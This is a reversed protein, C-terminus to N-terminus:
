AEFTSNRVDKLEDNIINVHRTIQDNIDKIVTERDEPSDITAILVALGSTLNYVLTAVATTNDKASVAERVLKAVAPAYNYKSM